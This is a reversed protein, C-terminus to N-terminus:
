ALPQGGPDFGANPRDVSMLAATFLDIEEGLQGLRNTNVNSMAGLSLYWQDYATRSQGQAILLRQSAAFLDGLDGATAAAEVGAIAEAADDLAMRLDHEHESIDLAILDALEENGDPETNNCDEEHPQARPREHTTLWEGLDFSSELPVDPSIARAVIALPLGWSIASEINDDISKLHEEIASYHFDALLGDIECAADSVAGYLGEFRCELEDKADALRRAVPRWEEAEDAFDAVAEIAADLAARWNQHEM